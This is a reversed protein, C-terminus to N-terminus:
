IGIVQKVEAMTDSAISRARKNGSEMIERVM